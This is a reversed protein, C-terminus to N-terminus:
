RDLNWEPFLCKLLKKSTTQSVLQLVSTVVIITSSHIAQKFRMREQTLRTIKIGDSPANQEFSPPYHFRQLIVTSCHCLNLHFHTLHFHQETMTKPLNSSLGCSPALNFTLPAVSNNCNSRLPAHIDAGFKKHCDM